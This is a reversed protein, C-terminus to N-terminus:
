LNVAGELVPGHQVIDMEYRRPGSGQSYDVALGRYGVYGDLTYDPGDFIKAYYTALAQWSFDSGAGFGGIDGRLLVSQGPEVAYSFRGGIIPDVWDVVGSRELTLPSATVAVEVDQRWYRIGALLDFTMAGPTGVNGESWVTYAAGFEM